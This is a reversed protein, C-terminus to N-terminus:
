CPCTTVEEFEYEHVNFVWGIEGTTTMLQYAVLPCNCDCLDWRCCATPKERLLVVVTNKSTAVVNREYISDTKFMVMRGDFRTRRAKYLNGPKMMTLETQVFDRDLGVSLDLGPGLGLGVGPGPSLHLRIGLHMGRSLGPGLGLGLCLNEQSYDRHDHSQYFGM